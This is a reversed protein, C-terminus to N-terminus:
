VRSENPKQLGNLLVTVCVHGNEVLPTSTGTGLKSGTGHKEVAVGSQTWSICGGALPENMCIGSFHTIGTVQIVAFDM